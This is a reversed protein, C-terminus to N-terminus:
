NCWLLYLYFLVLAVVERVYM